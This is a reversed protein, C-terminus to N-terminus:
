QGLMMAARNAPRPVRTTMVRWRIVRGRVTLWVAAGYALTFALGALLRPEWSAAVWPVLNEGRFNLVSPESVAYPRLMVQFLRYFAVPVTRLLARPDGEMGSM